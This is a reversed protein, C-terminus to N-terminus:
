PASSTPFRRLAKRYAALVADIQADMRFAAARRCAGVSKKRDDHLASQIEAAYARPTPEGVLYGSAQTVLENMAPLDFVVPPCGCAMAEILVLGFGGYLSSFCLLDAASYYLALMKPVLHGTFRVRSGFEAIIAEDPEHHVVLLSIDDPLHRLAEAMIKGRSMNFHGVYLLFRGEPELQLQRRALRRDFPRFISRDYWNYIVEVREAPVSYFREIEAAVSQSVAICCDSLRGIAEEMLAVTRDEAAEGPESLGLQKYREIPGFATLHFGSILLPRRERAHAWRLATHFGYEGHCHVLDYREPDILEAFRESKEAVREIFSRGQLSSSAVGIINRALPNAADPLFPRDECIIEVQVGRDLLGRSLECVHKETGGGGPTPRYGCVMCVRM